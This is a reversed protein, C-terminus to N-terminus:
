GEVPGEVEFELPEGLREGKRKWVVKYDGVDEDYFRAWDVRDMWFDGFRELKFERCRRVGRVQKVCIEYRGQFTYTALEFKVRQDRIVISTTYLDSDSTYSDVVETQGSGGLATTAIALSALAGAVLGIGGRRM